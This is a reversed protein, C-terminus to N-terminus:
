AGRARLGRSRHRRPEHPHHRRHGARQLARDEGRAARQLAARALHLAQRGARGPLGPRRPQLEGRGAPDARGAAGRSAVAVDPSEFFFEAAPFVLVRNREVFYLFGDKSFCPGNPIKFDLSPAFRKVEDAVRDGIVIPSRGSTADQPHRRLGRDGAAGGGHPARRAGHCLPRNPIGAAAQDRELNKALQEARPGSQDVFQPEFSTGTTKVNMM